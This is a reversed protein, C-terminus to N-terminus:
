CNTVRANDSSTTSSSSATTPSPLSSTLDNHRTVRPSPQTDFESSGQSNLSTQKNLTQQRQQIYNALTRKRTEAAVRLTEYVPDVITKDEEKERDRERERESNSKKKRSSLRRVFSPRNENASTASTVTSTKLARFADRWLGKMNSGNRKQADQENDAVTNMSPPPSKLLDQQALLVSEELEILRLHHKRKMSDNMQNLLKKESQQQDDYQKVSTKPTPPNIIALLISKEKKIENLREITEKCRSSLQMQIVPAAYIILQENNPSSMSHLRSNHNIPSIFPEFQIHVSATSSEDNSENVSCIYNELEENPNTSSSTVVFSAYSSQRQEHYDQLVSAMLQMNQCITDIITLQSQEMGQLLQPLINYQYKSYFSNTGVLELIYENHILDFAPTVGQTQYIKAYEEQIQTVNAHGQEIIKDFDRRHEKNISLQLTKNIIFCSLPACINKEMICAVKKLSQSEIETELLLSEWLDYMMGGVYCKARIETETKKRFDNVLQHLQSSALSCIKMWQNAFDAILKTLAITVETYQLLKNWVQPHSLDVFSLRRRSNNAM